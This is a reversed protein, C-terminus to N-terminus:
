HAPRHYWWADENISYLPRYHLLSSARVPHPLQNDLILPVGPDSGPRPAEDYVALVAHPTRLNMDEVVVVRMRGPDFGLAKLSFYKAIAYDECDGDKRLFEHITAWYDPVGWNVIDTVYPALNLFRNVAELQEARPRGRLSGLLDKLDDQRCRFSATVRCPQKLGSRSDEWLHRALMDTWKSFAAMSGGRTELSGFLGTPAVAAAPSAALMVLLAAVAAGGMEGLSKGMGM